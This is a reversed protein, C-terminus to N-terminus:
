DDVGVLVKKQHFSFSSRWMCAQKIMLHHNQGRVLVNLFAFLSARGREGKRGWARVRM